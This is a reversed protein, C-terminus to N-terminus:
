IKRVDINGKTCVKIFCIVNLFTNSFHYFCLRSEFKVRVQTTSHIFEHRIIHCCECCIEKSAGFKIRYLIYTGIIPLHSNVVRMVRKCNHSQGPGAILISFFFFDRGTAIKNTGTKFKM